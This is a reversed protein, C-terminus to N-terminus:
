TIHQVPIEEVDKRSYYNWYSGESALLRKGMELMTVSDYLENLNRSQLPEDLQLAAPNIAGLAKGRSAIVDEYRIVHDEPLEREYRECAWSLM